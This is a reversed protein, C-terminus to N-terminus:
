QLQRRFKTPYRNLIVATSYPLLSFVIFSALVSQVQSNCPVLMSHESSVNLMKPPQKLSM